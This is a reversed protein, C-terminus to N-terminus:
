ETINGAVYVRKGRYQEEPKGFKERNERWILGTFIQNPYPKGQNLFTPKRGPM